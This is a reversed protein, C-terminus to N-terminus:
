PVTGFPVSLFGALGDHWVSLILPASLFLLILGGATIAPAGVFAVMLQPMARNIVGLTVNYVLSAIVFPAALTFALGFTQGIQGIGAAAVVDPAPLNGLPILRYTDIMFSAARVHLGAIAALALGAIVLVHGIAPQPEAGPGGGYLQSLSTAQAAITGATQLAIVFLRLLLGFFLGTLVEAGGTALAALPTPPLVTAGPGVAPAVILTFAFAVGLKVRAPVSQEGFAPLLATIAGIRLFVAFGTWLTAQALGIAEALAPMM